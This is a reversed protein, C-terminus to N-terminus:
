NSDSSVYRFFSGEVLEESTLRYIEQHKFPGHKKHYTDVIQFGLYYGIWEPLDRRVDGYLYVQHNSVGKINLSPIFHKNWMILANELSYLNTWPALWKEGYLEKVAYEGLGELIISDLLTAQSSSVGLYDLRCVHNYEHALLAMIEEVSLSPSLFLFLSNKYAVGSKNPLTEKLNGPITRIPFIFISVVPGKWLKQLRQYEMDVIRWIGKVEMDNITTEIKPWEKPEFLGHCLLEYHIVEINVKPFYKMLPACIERSQIAYTSENSRMACTEVFKYLWPQTQIVSM